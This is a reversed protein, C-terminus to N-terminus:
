IISIICNINKLDKESPRGIRKTQIGRNTSVRCHTKTLKRVNSQWGIAKADGDEKSSYNTNNGLNYIKKNNM